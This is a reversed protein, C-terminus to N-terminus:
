HCGGVTCGDRQLDHCAFCSRTDYLGTNLHGSTRFYDLPYHSRPPRSHCSVCFEGGHCVSCRDTSTIAEPGHDLERWTIVHDRPPSAQHCEDCNDQPSGSMASHCRACRAAEREAEAAHDTRFAITHDDPRAGAALHSRPVVTGSFAGRSRQHCTQCRSMRVADPARREDDHCEACTTTKPVSFQVTAAQRAVDRHCTTCSIAAGARDVAHRDHAFTLDDRIVQRARPPSPTGDEHCGKCATMKPAPGRPLGHCRGCAAHRPLPPDAAEQPRDHCDVCAVHFGVARDMRGKDLHRAHSFEAPRERPGIEPPYPAPRTTGPSIGVAAHCLTCLRDPTKQFEKAHCAAGDCPAHDDRGPRAPTGAAVDKAPHCVVCELKEHPEAQHPFRFAQPGSEAAITETTGGRRCAAVLVIALFALRM